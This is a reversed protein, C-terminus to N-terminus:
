GIGLQVGDESLKIAYTAKHLTDLKKTFLIHKFM